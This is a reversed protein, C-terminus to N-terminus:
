GGLTRGPSISALAPYHSARAHAPPGSTVQTSRNTPQRQSRPARPDPDARSGLGHQQTPSHAPFHTYRRARPPSVKPPGHQAPIPGLVQSRASRPQKAHPLSSSPSSPSHPWTLTGQAPSTWASDPWSPDPCTPWGHTHPPALSTYSHLGPSAPPRDLSFNWEM